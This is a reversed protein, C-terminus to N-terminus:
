PLWYCTSGPGVTLTASANSVQGYLSLAVPNAAGTQITLDIEARYTTNAVGATAATSIATAATATQTFALWNSTGAAAYTVSTGGWLGTPAYSMGIGFTATYSTSSMQWYITCRGSKTTNVPVTPLVLGTGTFGTTGITTSTTRSADNAGTVLGTATVTTPAIAGPAAVYATTAVKTSADGGTQTTATTGNALATSVTYTGSSFQGVGTGSSENQGTGGFATGVVGSNIESGAISKNTLTQTDTTGVVAGTPPIPGDTTSGDSAWKVLNGNTGTGDSYQVNVGSGHHGTLASTLLAGNANSYQKAVVPAYVSGNTDTLYIPQGTTVNYLCLAGGCPKVIPQTSSVSLGGGTPSIFIGAASLNGNADCSAGNVAGDSVALIGSSLRCYGVDTAGTGPGMGLQGNVNMLVRMNTGDTPQVNGELLVGGYGSSAGAYGRSFHMGTVNFSDLSSYNQTTVDVNNIVALAPNDMFGQPLKLVLGGNVDQFASVDTFSAAPNPTAGWRSGACGPNNFENFAGYIRAYRVYPAPQTQASLGFCYNDFTNKNMGGNGSGGLIIAYGTSPGDVGQDSESRASYFTNLGRNVSATGDFVGLGVDSTSVVSATPQVSCTAVSLSTPVVSYGNGGDVGYIASVQGSSNIVAYAQAPTGWTTFLTGGSFTVPQNTNATCGSGSPFTGTYGSVFLTHTADMYGPQAGLAIDTEGNYSYDGKFVGMSGCTQCWFGIKTNGDSVDDLLANDLSAWSGTPTATVGTLGSASGSQGAIQQTFTTCGGRECAPPMVAVVDASTTFNSGRTGNFATPCNSGNCGAIIINDQEFGNLATFTVTSGTVSYGTISVPLGNAGGRATLYKGVVNNNTYVHKFTSYSSELAAIGFKFGSINLNEYDSYSVLYLFLGSGTSVTSGPGMISGNRVSNFNDGYFGGSSRSTVDDWSIRFADATTSTELVTSTNLDVSVGPPVVLTNSVRCLKGFPFVVKGQEANVIGQQVWYSITPITAFSLSGAAQLSSNIAATDDSNTPSSYATINSVTNSAAIGVTVTTGNTYGTITTTLTVGSVGAGPINITSGVSGATFLGQGATFTRSGSSMGGRVSTWDCVANYPPAQANIETNSSAVLPGALTQRSTASSSIGGLNQLAGSATASGTGGSALPITSMGGISTGSGTYYAVQGSTAIGVSVPNAQGVASDVYHKDAAQLGQTPDGNLFLPGNMTGGSATIQSQNLAAISQDVYAKSVAQAAQAAPMVQSQVQALSAQAAAPVVWYQTSTTGDSLYFIATYYLGAPTAGLNPALNVSVFGDPGITATMTGAVVSQGNAATFSPWSLRLTGSGVHGNALYVTGQVTTTSPAQASAARAFAMGLAAMAVVVVVPIQRMQRGASRLWENNTLKM